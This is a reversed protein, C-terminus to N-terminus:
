EKIHLFLRHWHDGREHDSHYIDTKRGDLLVDKVVPEGFNAEPHPPRKETVVDNFDRLGTVGAKEIEKTWFETGKWIFGEQGIKPEM